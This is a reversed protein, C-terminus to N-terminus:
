KKGLKNEVQTYYNFDSESIRWHPIGKEGLIGLFGIYEQYGSLLRFRDEATGVFFLTAKKPNTINTIKRGLESELKYSASFHIFVGADKKDRSIILKLGDEFDFHNAPSKAPIEKMPKTTNYLKELAKDLRKVLNEEPEPNFTAM